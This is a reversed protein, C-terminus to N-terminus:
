LAAIFKNFLHIFSLVFFTFPKIMFFQNHNNFLIFKSFIIYSELLSNIDIDYNLIVMLIYFYMKLTGIIFDIKFM